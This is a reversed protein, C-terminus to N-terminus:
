DDGWRWWRHRPQPKERHDALLAVLREQAQRREEDSKDLRARLDAIQDQADSIREQADVLRARLEHLEALANDTRTPADTSESGSVAADPWVRFLEAPEVIWGGSAEHRTGSIKGSKIARLITSRNCGVLRAAEILSLAMGKGKHM